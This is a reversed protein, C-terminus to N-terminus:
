VTVAEPLVRARQAPGLGDLDLLRVPVGLLRRAAAQFGAVDLLTAAPAAQYLLAAEADPAALGRARDGVLWLRAVKHERALRRLPAQRGAVLPDLGRKGTRGELADLARRVVEHYPERPHQRLRALRERVPLPLEITTTGATAPSM